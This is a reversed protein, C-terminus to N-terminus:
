SEDVCDSGTTTAIACGTEEESGRHRPLTRVSAGPVILGAPIALCRTLEAGWSPANSGFLFSLTTRTLIAAALSITTLVIVLGTIDPLMHRWVIRWRDAGVLLAADGHQASRQELVSGRM